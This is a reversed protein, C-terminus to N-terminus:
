ASIIEERVFHLRIVKPRADENFHCLVADRIKAHLDKINASQTFIPHGLARAVYGGEPDEVVLFLIEANVSAMETDYCLPALRLALTNLM